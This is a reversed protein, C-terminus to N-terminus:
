YGIHEKASKYDKMWVWLENGLLDHEYPFGDREIFTIDDDDLYLVKSSHEGPGPKHSNLGRIEERILKRLESKKM